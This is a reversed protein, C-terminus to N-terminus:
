AAVQRAEGMGTPFRSLQQLTHSEALAAQLLVSLGGAEKQFGPSEPHSDALVPPGVGEELLCSSFSGVVM